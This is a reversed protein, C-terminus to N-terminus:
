PQLLMTLTGDDISVTQLNYRAGGANLALQQLLDNARTEAEAVLQSMDGPPASYLTGGVDVGMVELRNGTTL